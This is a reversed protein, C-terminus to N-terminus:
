CRVHPASFRWETPGSVGTVALDSCPESCPWEQNLQADLSQPNDNGVGLDDSSFCHLESPIQSTATCRDVFTAEHNRTRSPRVSSFTFPRHFPTARPLGHKRFSNSYSLM